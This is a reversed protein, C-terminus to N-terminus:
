LFPALFSCQLCLFASIFTHELFLSHTPWSPWIMNLNPLQYPSPWLTESYSHPLAPYIPSCPMDCTAKNAMKLQTKNQGLRLSILASFCSIIKSLIVRAKHLLLIYSTNVARATIWFLLLPIKYLTLQRPPTLLLQIRSINKFYLQYSKSDNSLQLTQTNIKAYENTDLQICKSVARLQM